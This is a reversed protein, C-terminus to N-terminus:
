ATCVQRKTNCETNVIIINRSSIRICIEEMVCRWEAICKPDLEQRERYVSRICSDHTENYLRNMKRDHLSDVCLFNYSVNNKFVYTKIIKSYGMIKRQSQINNQHRKSSSELNGQIDGRCAEM